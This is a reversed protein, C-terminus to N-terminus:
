DGNSRMKTSLETWRNEEARDIYSFLSIAKRNRRLEKEIAFDRKERLFFPDIM